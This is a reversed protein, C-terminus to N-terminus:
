SPAHIQLSTTVFRYAQQCKEFNTSKGWIQFTSKKALMEEDFAVFSTISLKAFGLLSAGSDEGLM